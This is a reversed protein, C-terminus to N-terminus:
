NRRGSCTIPFCSLWARAGRATLAIEGRVWAMRSVSSLDPPHDEVGLDPIRVQSPGDVTAAGRGFEAVGDGLGVPDDPGDVVVVEVELMAKSLDGGGTLPRTGPLTSVPDALAPVGLLLLILGFAHM